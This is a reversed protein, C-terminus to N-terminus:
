VTRRTLAWEWDAVARSHIVVQFRDVITVSETTQDVIL